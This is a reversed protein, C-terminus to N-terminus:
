KFLINNHDFLNRFNQLLLKGVGFSYDHLFTRRYYFIPSDFYSKTLLDKLKVVWLYSLQKFFNMIMGRSTAICTKLDSSLTFGEFCECKYKM